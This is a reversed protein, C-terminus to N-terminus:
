VPLRDVAVSGTLAGDYGPATRALTPVYPVAVLGWPASGGSLAALAAREVSDVSLVGPAAIM